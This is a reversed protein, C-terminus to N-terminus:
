SNLCKTYEESLLLSIQDIAKQKSDEIEKKQNYWFIQQNKYAENALQSADYNYESILSLKQDGTMIPDTSVRTIQIHNNSYIKNVEDEYQQQLSDFVEHLRKDIGVNLKQIASDYFTQKTAKCKEIKLEVNEKVTTPVTPSQTKASSQLQPKTQETSENEEVNPSTTAVSEVAQVSEQPKQWQTYYKVGYYGGVTTTFLLVGTLLILLPVQIFGKKM